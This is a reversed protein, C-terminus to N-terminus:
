ASFTRKVDDSWLTSDVVGAGVEASKPADFQLATMAPAERTAPMADANTEMTQPCSPAAEAGMTSPHAVYNVPIMGSTVNDVTALLWGTNLLKHTNQVERPAIFVTQGPRISLEYANSAQFAHQVRSAIPHM